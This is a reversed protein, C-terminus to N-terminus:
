TRQEVWRLVDGIVREREPEHLLDHFLGEYSRFTKDASQARRQLERSGDPNTLRDATGHMVQFPITLDEMRARIREMARLLEAATRAPAPRQYILPDRNMAAVVEPDRSFDRNPTRFIGTRPALASLFKTFGIAFSSVTAAPKLAPASLLLGRIPPRRELWFRTVIAGGMSHGLLFTPLAPHRVSSQQYFRDLDTIYADFSRVWARPGESRGHGRLDFAEVAYGQGTLQGAIAAYRESHDKLGHVLLVLGRPSAAPTWTRYYLKLGDAGWFTGQDHIM